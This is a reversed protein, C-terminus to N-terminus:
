IQFGALRSQNQADQLKDRRRLARRIRRKLYKADSSNRPLAEFNRYLGYLRLTATELLEDVNSEYCFTYDMIIQALCPPFPTLCAWVDGRRVSEIRVNFECSKVILRTLTWVSVCAWIIWLIM